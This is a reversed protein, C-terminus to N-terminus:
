AVARTTFMAELGSNAFQATKLHTAHGHDLLLDNAESTENSM